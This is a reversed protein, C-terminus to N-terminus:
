RIRKSFWPLRARRDKVVVYVFLPPRAPKGGGGGISNELNKPYKKRLLDILQREIERENRDSTTEYLVYMKRWGDEDPYNKARGDPFNTIGIKFKRQRVVKSVNKQISDIVNNPWGTKHYKYNIEITM